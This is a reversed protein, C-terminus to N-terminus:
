VDTSGTEGGCFGLANPKHHLRRTGGGPGPRKNRLRKDGYGSLGAGKIYARPTLFQLGSSEGTGFPGCGRGHDVGHLDLQLLGAKQRRNRAHSCGFASGRRCIDTWGVGGQAPNKTAQLEPLFSAMNVQSSSIVRRPSPSIARVKGLASHVWAAWIADASQSIRPPWSAGTTIGPM